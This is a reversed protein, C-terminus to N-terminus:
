KTLDFAAEIGYKSVTHRIISCNIFGGLKSGVISDGAVNTKLIEADDVADISVIDLSNIDLIFSVEGVKWKLRGNKEKLNEIDLDKAIGVLKVFEVMDSEKTLRM